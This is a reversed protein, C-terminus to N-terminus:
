IATASLVGSNDVTLSYRTGNPSSLILRENSVIELDQQKKRNLADQSELERNREIEFITDYNEPPPQLIM